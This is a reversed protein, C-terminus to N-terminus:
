IVVKNKGSKKGSYLKEDAAQVWKEISEDSTKEALGITVTVKIDQDDFVFKESDVAKRLKEFVNKEKDIKDEYLILFEEGGWRSVTCKKCVSRMIDAIHVLVYDGANHGYIDNIQKFDDIDIMALFATNEASEINELKDMMYHRNYLKTLNDLNAMYNLRKESEIINRVSFSSYFILFSLVILSNCIWLIKAANKEVEYVSGFHFVYFTSVMYIVVIAISFPFAKVKARKIKFAIYELMFIIPIM